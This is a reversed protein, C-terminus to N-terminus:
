DLFPMTSHKTVKCGIDTIDDGDYPADYDLQGDRNEPVTPQIADSIPVIMNGSTDLYKSPSYFYCKFNKTTFPAVRVFVQYYPALRDKNDPYTTNVIYLNRFNDFIDTLEEDVPYTNATVKIENYIEELSLNTGTGSWNEIEIEIPENTKSISVVTNSGV